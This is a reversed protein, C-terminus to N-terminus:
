KLLEWIKRKKIRDNTVNESNYIIVNNTDNKLIKLDKSKDSLIINFKKSIDSNKLINDKSFYTSLILYLFLSILIFYFIKISNNFM